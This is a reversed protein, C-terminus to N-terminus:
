HRHGYYVKGCQRQQLVLNRTSSKQGLIQMLEHVSTLRKAFSSCNYDKVELKSYTFLVSTPLQNLKKLKVFFERHTKFPVKRSHLFRKQHEPLLHPIWLLKNKETQWDLIVYLTKKEQIVSLYIMCYKRANSGAM